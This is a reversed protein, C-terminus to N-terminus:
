APEAGRSGGREVEALAEVLDPAERRRRVDFYLLSLANFFYLQAAAQGFTGVLTALGMMWPAAGEAMAANPNVGELVARIVTLLFGASFPLQLPLALAANLTYFVLGVVFVKTVTNDVFRRAPNTSILKFTRGIATFGATGEEAMVPLVFAFRTAFFVLSLLALAMAGLMAVGAVVPSAAAGVAALVVAAFFLLTPLAFILIMVLILTLWTRPHLATRLRQGPAVSRGAVGDAAALAVAVSCFWYIPLAIMMLGCGGLIAGLAAPSPAQSEALQFQFGQMLVMPVQFLLAPLLIWLYLPKITRRTQKVAEDLLKRFPIPDAVQALPHSM